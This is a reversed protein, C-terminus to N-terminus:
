GILCVLKELARNTSAHPSGADPLSIDHEPLKKRPKSTPTRHIAPIPRDTAPAPVKVTPRLLISILAPQREMRVRKEQLWM